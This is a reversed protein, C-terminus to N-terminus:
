NSKVIKRHVSKGPLKIEVFYVGQKWGAVSVAGGVQTTEFVVRGPGDVIRLAEVQEGNGTRIQILDKAPNPFLYVEDSPTFPEEVSITISNSLTDCNGSGCFFIVTMENFPPLSTATSQMTYQMTSNNDPTMNCFCSTTAITDFPSINHILAMECYVPGNIGSACNSCTNLLTVNVVDNVDDLQINNVVLDNCDPWPALQSCATPYAISCTNGWVPDTILVTGFFGFPLSPVTPPVEHVTTQGPLQAFLFFQGAPNGITDGNVDILQIVPYNIQNTDNNILTVEIFGTTNNFAVNLVCLSDCNLVQSKVATNSLLIPLLILFLKKM